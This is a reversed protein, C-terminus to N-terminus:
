QVTEGDREDTDEDTDGTAISMSSDENISQGDRESTGKSTVDAHGEFMSFLIQMGVAVRLIQGKSKSLM